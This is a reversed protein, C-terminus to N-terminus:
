LIIYMLQLVSSLYRKLFLLIAYFKSISPSDVGDIQEKAAEHPWSSTPGNQLGSNSTDASESEKIEGEELDSPLEEDVEPAVPQPFIDEPLMDKDPIELVESGGTSEEIPPPGAAISSYQLKLDSDLM